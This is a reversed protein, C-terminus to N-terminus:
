IHCIWLIVYQFTGRWILQHARVLMCHREQLGLVVTLTNVLFYLSFGLSCFLSIFKSALYLQSWVDILYEKTIRWILEQVTSVHVYCMTSFMIHFVSISILYQLYTKQIHYIRLQFPPLNVAETTWTSSALLFIQCTKEESQACENKKWGWMVYCLSCLTHSFGIYSPIDYVTDWYLMASLDICAKGCLRGDFFDNM